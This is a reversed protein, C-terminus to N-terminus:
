APPPVGLLWRAFSVSVPRRPAPLHDAPELAVSRSSAVVRPFAELPSDSAAADHDRPFTPSTLDRALARLAVQGLGLLPIVLLILVTRSAETLM